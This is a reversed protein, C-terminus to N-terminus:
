HREPGFIETDAIRNASGMKSRTTGHADVAEDSRTICNKGATDTKDSSPKAVMAEGNTTDTAMTTIVSVIGIV